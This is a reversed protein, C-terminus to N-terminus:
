RVLNILARMDLLWAQQQPRFSTHLARPLVLQLDQSRMEDTQATSIAPELTLLHKPSIRDAESLVQRWRDKCSTKVALMKLRETPFQENAYSAEDPFLFDAAKRKETTAERRYRISNAALIAEVHHGFAYGARSKRRNQVSLSFKLFGDVDAMGEGHFGTKLRESVILKELSRFLAEEQDMWAILAEDPDALPDIGSLSERAFRSFEATSPFSLGFQGILRDFDSPEAQDPEIDLEALVKRAAYDLGRATSVSIEKSVAKDEVLDLGFLWQLQQGITSGAPSLIILLSRDPRQAILLFDGAHARHVVTRSNASYYLHYEASRQPQNRRVNSWTCFAEARPREEDENDDLWLFVAPFTEKELPAGLFRRFGGVGQFEHQNSTQLNIEVDTLYKAGAGLFHDALSGFKM